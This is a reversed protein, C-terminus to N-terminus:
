GLVFINTARMRRRRVTKNNGIKSLPGFHPTRNKPLILNMQSKLNFNYIFFTFREATGIIM